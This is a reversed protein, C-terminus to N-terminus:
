VEDQPYEEEIILPFTDGEEVNDWMSPPIVLYYVSCSNAEAIAKAEEGTSTPALLTRVIITKM